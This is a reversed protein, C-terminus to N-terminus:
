SFRCCEASGTLPSAGAVRRDGAEFVGVEPDVGGCMEYKAVVGGVIRVLAEYSLPASLANLSAAM